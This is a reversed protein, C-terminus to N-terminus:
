VFNPLASVDVFVVVVISPGCAEIDWGESKGGSDVCGSV